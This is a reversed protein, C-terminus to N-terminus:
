REFIHSPFASRVKVEGEDVFSMALLGSDASFRRLRILFTGEELGELRSSADSSTLSGLRTQLSPGGERWATVRV